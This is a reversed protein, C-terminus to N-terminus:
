SIKELEDLDKDIKDIVLNTIIDHASAFLNSISFVVDATLYETFLKKRESIDRYKRGKISYWVPQYFCSVVSPIDKFFTDYTIGKNKVFENSTSITDPSSFVFKVGNIKFSKIFLERKINNILIQMKILEIKVESPKLTDYYGMSKGTLISLMKQSRELDDITDLNKRQAETCFEILKPLTVNNWNM